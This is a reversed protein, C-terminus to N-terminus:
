LKRIPQDLCQTLLEAVSGVGPIVLSEDIELLPKLVFARLHMRPHPIVLRQTDIIHDGYLLMDLDITRPGFRQKDRQRGYDIELTQLEDLLQIPSLSTSILVVANIFDAQEIFDQPATLYLSSQQVLTIQDIDALSCIAEAVLEQPRGQNGGVGIWANTHIVDTM